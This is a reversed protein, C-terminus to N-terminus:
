VTVFRDHLLNRSSSLADACSAPPLHVQAQTNKHDSREVRRVINRHTSVRGPGQTPSLEKDEMRPQHPRTDQQSQIPRPFLGVLNSHTLHFIWCCCLFLGRVVLRTELRNTRVAVYTCAFMGAAINKHLARHTCLANSHCWGRSLVTPWLM